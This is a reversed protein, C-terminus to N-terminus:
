DARKIDAGLKGLREELDEYGRDIHHIDSIESTGAAVLAAIVLTMGMRLDYSTIKAGTLPTPGTIKVRHPDLVEAKAGMKTLEPIYGLRNEYLWEYINTEGHAQTALVAMPPVYDSNLKPYLGSQIKTGVYDKVPPKISVYDKGVEFNVNMKRLKLLYDELYDPQLGSIKVESRSAAALTIFSAAEDSDPIVEIQAGRLREVGNIVITPSGMGIINAGMKSLFTGLQQVHPEMAALRITTLGPTLVAAMMTNETATVSTEELIIRNGALHDATIDISGNTQIQAGLSRLASLHADVPRKGILDGGPFPMKVKKMRALMPGLLLISGRLKRVLDPAVEAKGITKARITLTRNEFVVEVGLDRLIEVMTEVDKIKPVNTLVCEEDTLLCASMLALVANKSGAVRIEGSLKKSGNIVFKSM